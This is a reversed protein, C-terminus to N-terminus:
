VLGTVTVTVRTRAPDGAPAPVVGEVAARVARTVDVARRGRRLVVSVEVALSGAANVRRVRVASRARETDFTGSSKARDTMRAMVSARLLGILGPRLFAVGPVGVVAQAIRETLEAPNGDAM